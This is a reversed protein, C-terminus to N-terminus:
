SGEGRDKGLSEIQAEFERGFLSIFDDEAERQVGVYRQEYLDWLKAKRNGPLVSDLFRRDVLRDELEEPRFRLLVGYLASFM